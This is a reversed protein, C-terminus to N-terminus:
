IKGESTILEFWYPWNFGSWSILRFWEHPRWGTEDFFKWKGFVLPLYSHYKAAVLDLDLLYRQKPKEFIKREGKLYAEVMEEISPLEMKSRKEDSQIAGIVGGLTLDYHEVRLGVRSREARVVKISGTKKLASVVKHLTAHDIRPAIDKEMQYKTSPGRTALHMLVQGHKDMKTLARVQRPSSM